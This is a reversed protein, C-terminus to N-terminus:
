VIVLEERPELIPNWTQFVDDDQPLQPQIKNQWATCMVQSGNKEIFINMPCWDSSKSPMLRTDRHLVVGSKEYVFKSLVKKLEL